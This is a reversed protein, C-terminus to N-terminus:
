HRRPRQRIVMGVVGLPLYARGGLRDAVVLHDEAVTEIMGHLGQSASPVWIELDEGTQEFEKLRAVWTASGGSQVGGGVPSPEVRVIATELRVEVWLAESELTVFDRGAGVVTGSASRAGCTATVRDGRHLLDRAVDALGRRRERLLRADTEATEAEERWEQGASRRLEGALAELPDDPSPPM